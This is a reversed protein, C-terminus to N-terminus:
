ALQAELLMDSEGNEVAKKINRITPELKIMNKAKCLSRSVSMSLYQKKNLDFLNSVDHGNLLQDLTM